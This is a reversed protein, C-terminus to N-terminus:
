LSYPNEEEKNEYHNYYGEYAEDYKDVLIENAFEPMLNQISEYLCSDCVVIKVDRNELKSGYTNIRGLNITHFIDMMSSMKYNNQMHIKGCKMCVKKELGQCEQEHSTCEEENDFVQGCYECKFEKIM